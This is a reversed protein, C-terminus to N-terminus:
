TQGARRDSRWPLALLGPLSGLVSVAGYVFAIAAGDAAPGGALHYLAAGAAERTGFGGFLALFTSAVLILPVIRLAAEVSVDLRIAQAAAMFLAMHSAMLLLSIGLHIVLNQPAFFLRGGVAAVERLRALRRRGFAWAATLGVVIITLGVGIRMGASASAAAVAVARWWNPAGALVVLWLALQGSGRELVIALIAEAMPRKVSPAAAHDAHRFARLADGVVGIPLALNLLVSLYYEGLARGYRLPVGVRNRHLALAGGDARVAFRHYRLGGGAV